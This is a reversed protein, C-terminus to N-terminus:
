VAPDNHTTFIEVAHALSIPRADDSLKTSAPMWSIGDARFFLWHQADDGTNPVWGVPLSAPWRLGHHSAMMQIMKSEDANVWVCFPKMLM